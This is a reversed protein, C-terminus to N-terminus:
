EQITELTHQWLNVLAPEFLFYITFIVMIVLVVILLWEVPGLGRGDSSQKM